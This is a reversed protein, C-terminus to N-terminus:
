ASVSTGSNREHNGGLHIWNELIRIGEPTLVSEPHFQLGWVPRDKYRIAMIEGDESLALVRIRKPLAGKDIVWSHYRGASFEEPLHRFIPDPHIIRVRSSKGHFVTSLQRLKGGAVEALAQHGLCIGLISRREVYAKIVDLLAGSEQPLGPGPSLILHSFEELDSLRFRDNRFVQVPMGTIKKLYFVLNYTFSDYNDIMAIKIQM